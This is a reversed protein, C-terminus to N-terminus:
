QIHRYVRIATRAIKHCVIDELRV